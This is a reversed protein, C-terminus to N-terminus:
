HLWVTHCCPSPAVRVLGGIKESFKGASPFATTNWANWDTWCWGGYTPWWIEMAFNCDVEFATIPIGLDAYSKLLQDFIAEPVGWQNLNRAASWYSYGAQNDDWDVRCRSPTPTRAGM